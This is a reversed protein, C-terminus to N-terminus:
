QLKSEKHKIGLLEVKSLNYTCRSRENRPKQDWFLDTNILFACILTVDITHLTLSHFFCHIDLNSKKVLPVTYILYHIGFLTYWTTYMLYHVDLLIYWSPLKPTVNKNTTMIKSNKGCMYNAMQGVAKLSTVNEMCHWKLQSIKCCKNNAIARCFIQGLIGSSNSQYTM